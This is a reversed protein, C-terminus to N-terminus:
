DELDLFEDGDSTTRRTSLPAFMKKGTEMFDDYAEAGMSQKLRGKLKMLEDGQELWDISPTKMDYNLDLIQNFLVSQEETFGKFKRESM